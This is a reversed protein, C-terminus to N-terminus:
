KKVTKRFEKPSCNKQKKFIQSFYSPSSFGCFRSIQVMSYDTTLLLKEGEEIRKTILYQIPSTGFEETFLHVIHYKNSHFVAALVDLTITEWYHTDIYRRVSDCLGTAKKNVTITSVSFNTQRNLLLILIDMYRQCMTHYGPLKGTVESLMNQLFFLIQSRRNKFSLIRYNVSEGEDGSIWELGEIGLVVYKLPFAKQGIETHLINPNIFVLDNMEVPYKKNEILFAGKGELIYFLESCKHTHQINKWEESYVEQSIYLLKAGQYSPVFAPDNFDYRDISM